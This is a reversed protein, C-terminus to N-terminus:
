VKVYATEERSVKIWMKIWFIRVRRNLGPEVVIEEIIFSEEASGSTKTGIDRIANAM